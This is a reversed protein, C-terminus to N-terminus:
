LTCRWTITVRVRYAPAGGPNSLHYPGLQILVESCLIPRTRYINSEWFNTPDLGTCGTRHSRRHRYKGLWHWSQVRMDDYTYYIGSWIINIATHTHVISMSRTHDHIITYSRTHTRTHDHIHENSYTQTHDHVPVPDLIQQYPRIFSLFNSGERCQPSSNSSPTDGEENDSHPRPLAQGEGSFKQMKWNLIECKSGCM